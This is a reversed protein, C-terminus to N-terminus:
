SELFCNAIQPYTFIHETQPPVTCFLRTFDDEPSRTNKLFLTGCNLACVFTSTVRDHDCELVVPTAIRVVWRARKGIGVLLEFYLVSSLIM